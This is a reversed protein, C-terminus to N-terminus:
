GQVPGAGHVSDLGYIMPIKLRHAFAGRRYDDIMDAWGTPSNTPPASGGESYVSGVGYMTLDAATAYKREVQHTQAIKEDLTMMAVLGAAKDICAQSPFARTAGTGATGTVGAAGGGTGTNGAVGAPNGAVGTTGASGAPGGGAGAPNNGGSGAPNGAIGTTGSSGGSGTTNGGTSGATGVSGSAGSGASSGAAGTGNNGSSCSPGLLIAPLGLCAFAFVARKM